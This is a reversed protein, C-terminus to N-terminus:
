SIIPNRALLKLVDGDDLDYWNRYASAVAYPYSERINLCCLIDVEKLLIKVTDSSGTPVAIGISGPKRKKVYAIAARMTYGSALGDDVLIVSRGSIDPFPRNQRFKRNREAITAMTKKVQGAIQEESLNLLSLLPENIFLDTDMNVAAFGAESNWPIQVKRVLILDLECDLAAAVELGVPVGGSPIALVLTSPELKGRLMEALQIGADQRDSFVSIRNRLKTNEILVAL